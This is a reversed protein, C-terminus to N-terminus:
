RERVFDTDDVVLPRDAVSLSEEVAGDSERRRERDLLLGTRGAEEVLESDFRVGVIMAPLSSPFKFAFPFGGSRSSGSCFSCFSCFGGAGDGVACFLLGLDMPPRRLEQIELKLEFNEDPDVGGDCDFRLALGALGM